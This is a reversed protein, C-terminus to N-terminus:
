TKIKTLVERTRDRAPCQSSVANLERLARLEWLPFGLERFLDASTRLLREAEAGAGEDAQTRGLSLLAYGAGRRDGLERFVGMAVRLHWRAGAPDGARRRAEALSRHTYAAAHRHGIREFLRLSRTLCREGDGLEGAETHLDGLSRLVHAEWHRERTRVAGGLAGTLLDAAQDCGGHRRLVDAYRKAAQDHRRGDDCEGALLMSVEFSEVARRVDGVDEALSGLQAAAAAQGRRDGCDRLLDLAERLEAEAARPDGGDLHVDALAALVAGTGQPDDLLRFRNEAMVFYNRAQRAHGHQWHVSGLNYLKEAEARPDRRRRAAALGLVSVARAAHGLWPTGALATCADALPETLEHWGRAGAVRVAAALHGTEEAAWALPDASVRRLVAPDPKALHSLTRGRAHEALVLATECARRLAVADPEPSEALVLRVFPPVLWRTSAPDTREIRDAPEGGARDAQEAAFRPHGCPNGQAAGRPQARGGLRDPTSEGRRDPRDAAAEGWGGPWDAAAARRARAAEGRGDPRDAAAEGWGGPADAAAARRARAAEGRRDPRDIATGPRGAADEGAADPLHGDPRDAAGLPELVHAAALAELRDRAEAVSCDLLAAASWDPIPGAFAALLRLLRRDAAPRERLASTVATRVALDGTALEDLRRRDDALRAALEAVRQHPRAALKAGVIRVALALGACHGLLRQTAEPEARLRREGVIAALLAWADETSLGRVPVPRGGCLGPLERRTTVLTACGPGSPLLARVQAEATADELLVLLRRDATYSHWLGTLGARDALEAPTAGLLRLFGTLVTAPDAPTGDPGRLSASLQGDPFRRRARWAAQVALASKGAGAAGHLVVPAPGRLARGVDALEAARGTFDPVAPPLQAPPGPTTWETGAIRRYVALLDEGPWVGAEEWLARRTRRLVELASERHGVAGLASALRAAFREDAPRAAVVPDLREVVARGDGDALELEVLQLLAASRRDELWLKHAELLPGGAVDAFADGRWCALARELARRRQARDDAGSSLLTLFDDADLEGQEVALAYGRPGSRLRQGAEAAGLGPSLTKRLKSVTVQVIAAASSPAGDPWLEDVLTNRGVFQGARALLVALLRRPQAASPLPVSATLPGLVQFRM